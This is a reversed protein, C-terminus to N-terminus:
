RIRKAGRSGKSLPLAYGILCLQDLAFLVVSELGAGQALRTEKQWPTSSDSIGVLHSRQAPTFGFQQGNISTECLNLNRAFTFGFSETKLCTLAAPTWADRPYNVTANWATDNVDCPYLVEFRCGPITSRVFSMIQNTFAGVLSPLFAAEDVATSPSITNTTIVQLPRGYRTQFTSTTYADYYPMGSHAGDAFYWWQVEGFQLYPQSGAAVQIAAMDAYVQQWFATSQPSFNTQYSPTNLLVAEQNPYRQVIGTAPSPDANGLEMSFSTTVDLGYGTLAQYFSSSWDRAARNLRPTASLDTLWPADTGGTFTSGSAEITLNTTSASTTLTLANGVIGLARAYITLQNGSALARIGTYGGNIELALALAL